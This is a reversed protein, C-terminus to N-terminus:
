PAYADLVEKIELTLPSIVENILKSSYKLTFTPYDNALALASAFQVAQPVHTAFIGYKAGEIEAAAKLKEVNKKHQNNNQYKTVIVYPLKTPKPLSGIPYNWVTHLFASLGYVSIFDPITPLIVLDSYRIMVDNLVSISPACDFIIYDYSKKIFEFEQKILAWLRMEYANEGLNLKIFKRVIEKEVLRLFPGCSLLSIDLPINNHTTSSV